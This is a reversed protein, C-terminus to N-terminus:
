GCFVFVGSAQRSIKMCFPLTPFPSTTELFVDKNGENCLFKSITEDRNCQSICDRSHFNLSM